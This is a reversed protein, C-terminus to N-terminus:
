DFGRALRDLSAYVGNRAALEAHTGQESIGDETLVVIKDASRITSLRHAITITTRGKALRTLSEQVLRESENDLAATAEDLLLVKPAKLFVRAISIRQKQGGSLKVGREGVYTDYGDKLETIFDHAGSLKAAEIVEEYDYDCIDVYIRGVEKYVHCTTNLPKLSLHIQRVLADEFLFRNKGKVGIEAYKILFSKFEMSIEKRDHKLSNKRQLNKM